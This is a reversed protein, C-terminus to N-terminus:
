ARCTAPSRGGRQRHREARQLGRRRRVPARHRAIAPTPSRRRRRSSGSSARRSRAGRGHPRPRAVTSAPACGTATSRTSTSPSVDYAWVEAHRRAAGRVPQRDRRLRRRLGERSRRQALEHAVSPDVGGIGLGAVVREGDRVPLGGPLRARGRYPLLARSAAPPEGRQAAPVDRRRRRGGRRRVPRRDAAGDMADQQIPDGRATSSRSRSACAAGSRGRGAGPRRSRGGVRARAPAGPPPDDYGLGDEDPLEGFADRWRQADDGHQGEYDLGLAWLM